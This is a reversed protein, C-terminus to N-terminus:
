LVACDSFVDVHYQIILTCVSEEIASKDADNFPVDFRLNTVRFPRAGDYESHFLFQIFSINKKVLPANVCVFFGLFLLDFARFSSKYFFMGYM